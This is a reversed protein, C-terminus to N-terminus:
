LGKAAARRMRLYDSALACYLAADEDIYQLDQPRVERVMRAPCGAWLEGSKVRKGPAVVAGAAVVAGTEVVAGDLVIAGIGILCKDELVCGHVIAGHGITIDSGITTPATGKSIHVITGDQINTRAGVRIWHDDGRILANFWVSSQDGIEVDGIVTANPAIFVDRGLTPWKGKYPLILGGAEALRAPRGQSQAADNM